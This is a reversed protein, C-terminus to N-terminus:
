PEEDATPDALSLTLVVGGVPIYTFEHGDVTLGGEEFVDVALLRSTSSNGTDDYFVVANASEIGLLGFPIPASTIDITELTYDAIVDLVAVKGGTYGSGSVESGEVDAFTTHSSSYSYGDLIAAKWNRGRLSEDVMRTAYEVYISM